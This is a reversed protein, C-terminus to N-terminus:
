LGMEKLYDKDAAVHAKIADFESTDARDLMKNAESMAKEMRAPVEEPTIEGLAVKAKYMTFYTREIVYLACIRLREKESM